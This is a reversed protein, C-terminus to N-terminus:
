AFVGENYSCFREDICLINYRIFIGEKVCALIDINTPNINVTDINAAVVDITDLIVKM